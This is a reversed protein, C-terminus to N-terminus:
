TGGVWRGVRRARAPWGLAGWTTIALRASKRGLEPAGAAMADRALKEAQEAVEPDPGRSRFDLLALAPAVRGEAM